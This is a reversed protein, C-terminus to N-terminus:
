FTSHGVTAWHGSYPRFARTLSHARSVLGLLRPASSCRVRVAGYDFYGKQVEGWWWERAAPNSADYLYCPHGCVSDPWNVSDTPTNNAYVAYGHQQLPEFTKSQGQHPSPHTHTPLHHGPMGMCIVNPHPFVFFALVRSLLPRARFLGAFVCLGWLELPLRESTPSVHVSLGDLKGALVAM